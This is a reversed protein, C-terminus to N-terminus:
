EATSDPMECAELTECGGTIQTKTEGPYRFSLTL